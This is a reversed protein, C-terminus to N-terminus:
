SKLLSNRPLKYLFEFTYVSVKSPRVDPPNALLNKAAGPLIFSPRALKVLAFSLAMTDLYLAYTEGFSKSVYIPGNSGEWMAASTKGGKAHAFESLRSYLRRAWGGPDSLTKKEFIASGIKSKLYESLPRISSHGSLGDCASGFKVELSVEPKWQELACLQFYVGVTAKEIAARLSDSAIRYFGCLSNFMSAQFEDASDLMFYSVPDQDSGCSEIWSGWLEHMAELDTGHDDSTRISVDDPFSVISAWVSKKILDRPPLDPGSAIAFAEPPLRVRSQRFDPRPSGEM